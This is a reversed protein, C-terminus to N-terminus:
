KPMVGHRQQHTRPLCPATHKRRRQHQYLKRNRKIATLLFAKLLSFLSLLGGALFGSTLHCLLFPPTTFSVNAHWWLGCPPVRRPRLRLHASPRSWQPFRRGCPRRRGHRRRCARRSCPDFFFSCPETFIVSQCAQNRKILNQPFASLRVPSSLLGPNAPLVYRSTLHCLLFPPTAFSATANWLFASAPPSDATLALGVAHAKM